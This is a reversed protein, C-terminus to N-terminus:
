YLPPHSTKVLVTLKWVHGLLVDGYSFCSFFCACVFHYKIVARRVFAMKEGETIFGTLSSHTMGSQLFSHNWWRRPTFVRLFNTMVILGLPTFFYWATEEQCKIYDTGGCFLVKFMWAPLNFRRKRGWGVKSRAREVFRLVGERWRWPLLSSM